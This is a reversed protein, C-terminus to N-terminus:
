SDARVGVYERVRALNRDLAEVADIVLKPEQLPEYTRRGREVHAWTLEYWGPIDRARGEVRSRHVEVDSCVCEVVSFSAGYRDALGSWDQRPAERAVLDLVLDRGRRLEQEALRSLLSWGVARQREVPLEVVKWVEDIPRLASMLWDFSGVTCALDTAIANAVTSKGSGTWGSVLVLRQMAFMM